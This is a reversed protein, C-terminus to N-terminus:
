KGMCERIRTCTNVYNMELQQHMAWLKWLPSGKEGVQRQETIPTMRQFTDEADPSDMEYLHMFRPAGDAVNEYTTIMTFGEVAAAAIYRLHIFDAWDRLAQDGEPERPSIMVLELGLTPKGTLIGQGPRQYPRFLIGRIDATTQPSRFTEDVEYLGLTTFEELTRPFETRHPRENQWWPPVSSGQSQSCKRCVSARTCRMRGTRYSWVFTDASGIRWLM